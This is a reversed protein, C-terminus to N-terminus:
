PNQGQISEWMTYEIQGAEIEYFKVNELNGAHAQLSLAGLMVGVVFELFLRGFGHNM